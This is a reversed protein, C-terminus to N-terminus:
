GPGGLPSEDWFKWAGPDDLTAAPVLAERIALVLSDLGIGRRVSTSVDAPGPEISGQEGALDSRLLVRIIHPPPSANGAIGASAPLFGSIPDGCHLILDAGETIRRSIEQSQRQIPDLLSDILATWGPSDILHVALGALDLTVGVHDRTTGREDAVISVSRKALANVLSSKGINPPGIAVVTPARLLRSLARAHGSGLLPGANLRNERWRRPQDLLLDIALPSECVSLAELMRREIDGPTPPDHEAAFQEDAVWRPLGVQVLRHILAEIVAPSGHPFLLAREARVRAVIVDDIGKISRLQVEGLAVPRLELLSLAADVDGGLEFIAIAHAASPLGTTGLPSALRWAAPRAASTVRVAPPNM